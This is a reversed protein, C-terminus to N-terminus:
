KYQYIDVLNKDNLSSKNLYLLFIFANQNGLHNEYIVNRKWGKISKPEGISKDLSPM